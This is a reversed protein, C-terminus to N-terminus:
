TLRLYMAQSAKRPGTQTITVLFGSTGRTQQERSQVVVQM